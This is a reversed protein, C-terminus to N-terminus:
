LVSYFDIIVTDALRMGSCVAITNNLWAYQPAGTEFQPTTRFYYKAPDVMEGRALQALIDPKGTRIGKNEIYILANDNTRIAYRAHLIGSGDPRIVQWDGSGPLVEGSLKEGKFSGGTIPIFRREGLPVKSIHTPAGLNVTARFLLEFAPKAPQFKMVKEKEM